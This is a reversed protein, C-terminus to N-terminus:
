YTITVNITDTYNGAPVNQSAAIQGYVTYTEATGTAAAVPVTDTGVDNGWLTTRTTDSYLEYDLYTPTAAGDSMARTTGTASAGNAGTDLGIDYPTDLTCTATITSTGDVATGVVTDYNGFNLDTASVDCSATVTATVQFTTTATAAHAATGVFALGAGVLAARLIHNRDM